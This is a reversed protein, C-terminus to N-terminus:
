VEACGQRRCGADIDLSYQGNRSSPLKFLGWGVECCGLGIKHLDHFRDSLLSGMVKSM